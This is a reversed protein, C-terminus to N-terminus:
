RVRVDVTYDRDPLPGPRIERYVVHDIGAAGSPEYYVGTAPVVVGDCPTDPAVITENTPGATVTGLLGPQLVEIGPAPLAACEAGLTYHARLLRPAGPAAGTAYAQQAVWPNAPDSACGSIALVAVVLSVSAYKM